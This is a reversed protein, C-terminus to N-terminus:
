ESLFHPSAIRIGFSSYLLFRSIRDVSKKLKTNGDFPMCFVHMKSGLLLLAFFSTNTVFCLICESFTQREMKNSRIAHTDDYSKWVTILESHKTRNAAHRREALWVLGNEEESSGCM